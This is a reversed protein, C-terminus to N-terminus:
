PSIAVTGFHAGHLEQASERVEHEVAGHGASIGNNRKQIAVSLPVAADYAARVVKDGGNACSCSIGIVLRGWEDNGGRYLADVHDRHDGFAYETIAAHLHLDIG